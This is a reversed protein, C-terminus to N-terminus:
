GSSAKRVDADEANEDKQVDGRKSLLSITKQQDEITRQQSEIISVFSEISQAPLPRTNDSEYNVLEFIDVEIAEAIKLVISFKISDTRLMQSISQQSMDLRRGIEAISIKKEEAVKKIAEVIDM